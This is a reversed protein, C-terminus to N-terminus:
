IGSFTQRSNWIWSLLPYAWVQIVICAYYVWESYADITYIQQQFVNIIRNQRKNRKKRECQFHRKRSKKYDNIMSLICLIFIFICCWCCCMRIEFIIFVIFLHFFFNIMQYTHTHTLLLTSESEMSSISYTFMTSLPVCFAQSIYWHNPQKKTGM